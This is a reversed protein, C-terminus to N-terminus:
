FETYSCMGPVYRCYGGLQKSWPSPWSIIRCLNCQIQMWGRQTLRRARVKGVTAVVTAVVVRVCSCGFNLVAVAM